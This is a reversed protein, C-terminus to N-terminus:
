PDAEMCGPITRVSGAPLVMRASVFIVTIAMGQHGSTRM